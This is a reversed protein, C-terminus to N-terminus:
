LCTTCEVGAALPFPGGCVGVPTPWTLRARVRGMVVRVRALRWTPPQSGPGMVGVGERCVPPAQGVARWARTRQALQSRLEVGPDSACWSRPAGPPCVAGRQLPRVVGEVRVSGGTLGRVVAGLPSSRTSLPDVCGSVPVWRRCPVVRLLAHLEGLSAPTHPRQADLRGAYMVTCASLWVWSGTAILSSPVSHSHWSVSPRLITVQQLRRRVPRGAGGWGRVGAQGGAGM